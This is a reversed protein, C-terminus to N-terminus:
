DEDPNYIFKRDTKPYPVLRNKRNKFKKKKLNKQNEKLLKAERKEKDTFM